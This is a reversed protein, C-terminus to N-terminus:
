VALLDHSRTVQCVIVNNIKQESLYLSVANFGSAPVTGDLYITTQTNAVVIFYQEKYNNAANQSIPLNHSLLIFVKNRKVWKPYIARDHDM